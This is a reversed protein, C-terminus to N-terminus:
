YLNSKRWLINLRYMDPRSRIHNRLILSYFIFLADRIAEDSREEGTVIVHKGDGALLMAVFYDPICVNCTLQNM